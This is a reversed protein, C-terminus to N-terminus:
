PTVFMVSFMFFFSAVMVLIVDKTYVTKGQNKGM